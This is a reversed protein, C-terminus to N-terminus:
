LYKSVDLKFVTAHMFCSDFHYCLLLRINNSQHANRVGSSSRLSRIRIEWNRRLSGAPPSLSSGCCILTQPPDLNVSLFLDYEVPLCFSLSRVLEKSTSFLPSSSLTCGTDTSLSLEGCSGGLRRGTLCFNVYLTRDVPM